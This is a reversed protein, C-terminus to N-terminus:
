DGIRYAGFLTDNRHFTPSGSTTDGYGFFEIYDSSGNLELTTYISVTFINETAGSNFNYRNQKHVSGNKYIYSILNLISNSVTGNIRAYAYVFYKGAVTPTFRYNTTNDYCNDTDFEEIDCQVKTVTADAFTTDTNLHAEFAPYLLKQTTLNGSGDSTIIANGGSDQLQDVKLISSM